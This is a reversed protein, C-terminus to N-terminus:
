KILSDVAEQCSDMALGNLNRAICQNVLTICVEAHGKLAPLYHPYSEIIERFSQISAEYEQMFHKVMAIQVLAYVSTAGLDIVKSYAKGASIYAGQYFYADALM